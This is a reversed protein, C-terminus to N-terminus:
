VCVRPQPEGPAYQHWDKLTPPGVDACLAAYPHAFVPMEWLRVTGDDDASALLKGDPSFAVGSVGFISSTAHLPAGVRQGTVPNWLRVTGDDEASALLKGDPSFAVSSVGFGPGISNAHIPAGVPQGTAPNWLRVTGDRGASALLKGDPSFAVANVGIGEGSSTVGPSAHLPAGVPQGTAPNWLRVSGDGDASALLKGNPSFAVGNVGGIGEGSRRTTHIPAGVPQGTAPNWLRVTGDDEASALLKGDPSFAVGNVGRGYPSSRNAHIPAGVPQGTPPDWLRVTGDSAATALLKGDSSFAVGSVGIGDLGKTTAHIPASLPRGTVPNWLRVTGDSAATALLKADPSFAVGNVASGTSAAHLPAHHPQGTVPDWLRVTGGNDATALLNGDPSFAVDNVGDLPGTAHFPPGVPQGTVPNWLRVRGDGGASALLKGDPSFAVGFVGSTSAAHLPPGVPQGTVPNWLRVTGDSDASALLKSDPSFAVGLVYGHPGTTHLPPGVIQGTVPDWLRVTGDGDASALLKGDPSFAVGSVGHQSGIAARLPAGVPQGTVPDWLQVTGDGDASALLKGDPSFALGYVGFASSAAHLPAGVPQGTVPDWLRVGGGPGDEGTALLRGDPSFAVASVSGGQSSVVRLPAALAQGTVPDWLRVTGDSDASALLKGDPSFAVGYVLFSDAPLIGDQQQGTLLTTMVSDALDTPFVRWAAVALRRATVSDTPDITLSEAALQRSLAIAHQRDANAANRVAIGAATIAILTLALLVAIAARRRRTTRLQDHQSAALFAREDPNLDQGHHAAWDQAVALRTGRFLHSPDRGEHQWDRAADTLDRHIRLSERDSTLWQRLRPWATLLTEHTIEITDADATVLRADVLDALVRRAPTAPESDDSGNLEALTVRRRTDPTGEGLTVLRLLVRQLAIQGAPDLKDYVHDAAQAVARDIGGTARYGAVTLRRGERNRWTQQLAYSLLALRGAAYSEWGASATSVGTGAATMAPAAHTHSRVGLDALLIEVLAAEAVLGATAAPKEITDRLGAEDIPGVLVQHDQLHTALEPYATSRAYFDARIGIVVLAPAERAGVKRHITGGDTAIGPTAAGAAACLAKIFTRREQEDACQTFIEEFQDVILVLRPGAASQRAATLLGTEPEEAQQDADEVDIMMTAAASARGRAGAQRRTNTLLAQRIAGIIRTPDTRLDAELAGAPVGALSAIRTALELLPRRGPTMLDRPWALSGRAPLGEAAIAPLLGAALLSSKGSGSPGLVILLGPRALQEGARAILIATLQQRGFFREADKPQFAALGPYPCEASVPVEAADLAAAKDEDASPGASIAPDRLGARYRFVSRAEQRLMALEVLTQQQNDAVERSTAATQAVDEAIITLQQNVEDLVWGFESFEEGLERLGRVLVERVAAASKKVTETLAVQVADVGRLVGAVEDRLAAAAPTELTLGAELEAALADRLEAQGAGPRGGARLRDWARIVAEALLGGGVGGVQSLAAGVVAAGGGTGSALLLPWVVPACAAAAVTATAALPVVWRRSARGGAGASTVWERVSDQARHGLEVSALIGNGSSGDVSRGVGAM